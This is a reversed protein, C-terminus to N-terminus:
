AAPYRRRSQDPRRAGRVLLGAAQALAESEDAGGSLAEPLDPFHVVLRGEEDPELRAPFGYCGTVM